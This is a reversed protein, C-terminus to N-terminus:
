LLEERTLAWTKGYDSVWFDNIYENTDVKIISLLWYNLKRISGNCDLVLHYEDNPIFHEIANKDKKYYIGEKLAKFVTVLDIGLKEEIDELSGLKNSCDSVVCENLDYYFDGRKETLRM